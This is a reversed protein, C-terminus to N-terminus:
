RQFRGAFARLPLDASTIIGPRAEHVSRISNIAPLGTVTMGIS